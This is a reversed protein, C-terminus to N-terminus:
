SHVFSLHLNTMLFIVQQLRELFITLSNLPHVIWDSLCNPVLISESSCTSAPFQNLFLETSCTSAILSESFNTASPLSVFLSGLTAVPVILPIEAVSTVLPIEVCFKNILGVMWAKTWDIIRSTLMKTSTACSFKLRSWVTRSCAFTVSAARRQARMKRVVPFTIPVSLSRAVGISDEEELVLDLALKWIGVNTAM